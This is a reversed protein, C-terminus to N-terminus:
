QIHNSVHNLHELGLLVNILRDKSEIQFLIKREEKFNERERKKLNNSTFAVTSAHITIVSMSLCISLYFSQFTSPYFSLYFSLFISLYFSLFCSLYFSLFISLLFSLFLCFDEFKTGNQFIRYLLFV